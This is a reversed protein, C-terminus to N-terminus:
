APDETFSAIDAAPRTDAWERYQSYPWAVRGRSLAIPRPLDGAEIMRYITAISLTTRRAMEAISIFDPRNPESM